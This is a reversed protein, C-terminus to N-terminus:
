TTATWTCCPSNCSASCRFSRLTRRGGEPARRSCSKAPELNGSLYRSAGAYFYSISRWPNEPPLLDAARTADRGMNEIGDRQLTARLLLVDALLEPDDDAEEDFDEDAVSAWHAGM